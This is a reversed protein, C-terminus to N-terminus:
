LRDPKSINNLNFLYQTFCNDVADIIPKYKKTMNEATGCSNFIKTRFDFQIIILALSCFTNKCSVTFKANMATQVDHCQVRHKLFLIM